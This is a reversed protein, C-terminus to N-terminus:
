WEEDYDEYEEDIEEDNEHTSIYDKLATLIEKQGRFADKIESAEYNNDILLNVLTDAAYKRESMDIHDCIVNYVEAIFDLSM